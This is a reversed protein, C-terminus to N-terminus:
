RWRPKDKGKSDTSNQSTGRMASAAGAIALPSERGTFSNEPRGRSSPQPLLSTRRSTALSSSSRRTAAASIASQALSSGGMASPQLSSRRSSALNSTSTRTQLNRPRTAPPSLTLQSYPGPSSVRDRFSLRSTKNQLVKSPTTSELIPSSQTDPVVPSRLPIKSEKSSPTHALASHASHPTTSADPKAHPSPTTLTLPKFNHGTLGDETKVSSNWRPRGDTTPLTPRPIRNGTPTASGGRAGPSPSARGSPFGYSSTRNALGKRPPQNAGASM